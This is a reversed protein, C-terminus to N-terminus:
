LMEKLIKKRLDITRFGKLIQAMCKPHSSILIYKVGDKDYVYMMNRPAKKLKNCYDFFIIENRPTYIASNSSHMEFFPRYIIPEFTKYYDSLEKPKDFVELNKLHIAYGNKTGFYRKLDNFNLRSGSAVKSTYAYNEQLDNCKMFMFSTGCNTIEEVEFDSEAVIKGNLIESGYEYPSIHEDKCYSTDFQNYGYENGFRILYPRAKTCYWLLKLKM